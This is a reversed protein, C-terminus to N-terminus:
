GYKDIIQVFQKHLENELSDKGSLVTLNHIERAKHM